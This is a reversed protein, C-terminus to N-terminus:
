CKEGITVTNYTSLRTTCKYAYHCVWRIRITQQAAGHLATKVGNSVHPSKHKMLRLPGGHIWRSDTTDSTHWAASSLSGMGV